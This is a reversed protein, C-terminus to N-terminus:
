TQGGVLAEVGHVEANSESNRLFIKQVEADFVFQLNPRTMSPAAYGSAAYSRDKTTPDITSLNSYGRM